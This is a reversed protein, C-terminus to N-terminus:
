RIYYTAPKETLRIFTTEVITGGISVGFKYFNPFYVFM